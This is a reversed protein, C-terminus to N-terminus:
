ILGHGSCHMIFNSQVVYVYMRACLACKYAFAFCEFYINNGYMRVHILYLTAYLILQIEFSTNSGNQADCERVGM